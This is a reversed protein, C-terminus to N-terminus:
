LTSLQCVSQFSMCHTKCIMQRHKEALQVLMPLLCDKQLPELDIDHKATYGMGQKGKNQGGILQNILLIFGCTFYDNTNMIIRGNLIM